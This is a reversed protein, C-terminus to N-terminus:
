REWRRRKRRRRNGKERVVGVKRTKGRRSNGIKRKVSKRRGRGVGRWGM